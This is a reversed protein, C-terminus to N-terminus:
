QNLMSTQGCQSTHKTHCVHALAVGTAVVLVHLAHPALLLGLLLGLLGLLRAHHVGSWGLVEVLGELPAPRPGAHAAHLSHWAM